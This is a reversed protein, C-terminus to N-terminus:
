SLGWKKRAEEATLGEGSIEKVNKVFSREYNYAVIAVRKSLQSLADIIQMMEAEIQKAQNTDTPNNNM